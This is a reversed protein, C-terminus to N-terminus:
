AGDKKSFEHAMGAEILQRVIESYSCRIFRADKRLELIRKDVNKPVSVTVRRMETTINGGKLLESSENKEYKKCFRLVTSIFDM